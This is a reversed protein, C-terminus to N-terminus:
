ERRLPPHNHTALSNSIPGRMVRYLAIYSIATVAFTAIAIILFTWMQGLKDYMLGSLVPAVLTAHGASSYAISSYRGRETKDVCRMLVSMGGVMLGSTGIGQLTRSIIYGPERTAFALSTMAGAICFGGISFLLSAPLKSSVLAFIPGCLMNVFSKISMIVSLQKYTMGHAEALRPGLNDFSAVLFFNFFLSSYVIATVVAARSM